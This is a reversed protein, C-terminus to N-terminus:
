KKEVKQSVTNVPPRPAGNTNVKELRGIWSQLDRSLSVLQAQLADREGICLNNRELLQDREKVMQAFRTELDSHKSEFATFRTTLQSNAQKLANFHSVIQDHEQLMTNHQESLQTYDTRWQNGADLASTLKKRLQVCEAIATQYDDELKANRSELDKIRAKTSVTEYSQSCGWLGLTALFIVLATKITSQKM